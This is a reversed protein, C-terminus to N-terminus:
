PTLARSAKISFHVPMHYLKGNGKCYAKDHHITQGSVPDTEDPQSTITWTDAADRHVTVDDAGAFEGTNLVPRFALGGSTSTNCKGVDDGVHLGRLASTGVPIFFGPNGNNAAQELQGLNGGSQVTESGDASTTGDANILAFTLRVKRPFAACKRDNTGATGYVVDGSGAPLAFMTTTVGCEGNLYRSEGAFASTSPELYAAIGDGQVLFAADNSFYFAATPNTATPTKALSAEAGRIAAPAAPATPPTARDCAAVAGLLAAGLISLKRM